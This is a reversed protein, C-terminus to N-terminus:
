LTDAPREPEHPSPAPPRRRIQTLGFLLAVVGTVLLVLPWVLLTHKGSDPNAALFVAILLSLSGLYAAGRARELTSYAILALSAGILFAEWGPPVGSSGGSEDFGGLVVLDAYGLAVLMVGGANVIQPAFRRPSWRRVVAAVAGFAVVLGAFIWRFTSPADPSFAEVVVAFVAVGLALSGILGCAASRFVLAAAWAMAGVVAAIWAVTGGGELPDDSGTARAVHVLGLVLLPLGSLLLSSQQRSPPDTRPVLAAVAFLVAFAGLTIAVHVPKSWEEFFRFELMVVGAALLVGGLGLAGARVLEPSALREM